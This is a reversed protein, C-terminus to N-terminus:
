KYYEAQSKFMKYYLGETNQMLENHNGCEVIKNGDLVLINDSFICSSLRHSIFMCLKTGVVDKFHYYIEAEAMADLASTPEDLIVFSADKYLARSLAFKQMEGGSFEVGTKDFWKNIYTHEKNPLEMVRDLVKSRSLVDYLKEQNDQDIEINNKISFSIIKFDQFVVSLCNMYEDYLYENINIGNVLIEGEKVEFFRCLLKIITTKGAGNLGVLSTKEKNTIKFSVNQLIYNDTRPYKFSVNKFEIEKIEEIHKTGLKFVSESKMLKIFNEQYTCDKYYTKLGYILNSMNNKLVSLASFLMTFIPLTIDGKYVSYVLISITIFMAFIYHYSIDLVNYRKNKKTLTKLGQDIEENVETGKEKIYDYANYLRLEKQLRFSVISKNFYWQRRNTRVFQKNYEEDLQQYKGYIRVSIIVGVLTILLIDIRSYLMVISFVSTITIISRIITSLAYVVSYIGNSYQNLCQKAYSLEDAFKPDEIHFYDISSIKKNFMEDIKFDAKQICYYQIRSFINSLFTSIFLSGVFIIVVYLLIVKDKNGWLEEVIMKPFIIFILDEISGLISVIVMSIIVMPSTKLLLPVFYKMNNFVTKFKKM